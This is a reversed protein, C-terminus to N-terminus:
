RTSALVLTQDSSNVAEVFQPPGGRIPGEVWDGVGREDVCLGCNIWKLTVQNDKATKFLGEVFDKPLPHKEEQDSTGKVPNPHTKQLKFSLSTAGEYAFINVNIGKKLTAHAMRFATATNASEYPPDM